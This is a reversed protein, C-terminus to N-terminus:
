DNWSWVDDGRLVADCGGDNYITQGTTHTNEVSTLWILQHAISEPSQHYNLPMPVVSDVFALTEESSRLQETMPTVVVGPAVANLPIGAGAWQPKISERRVWRSIARKSSSYIVSGTQPDDTVYSAAIELARAEDGALAADVLDAAVTQLSAMSSVVAVRPAQAQTLSPLLAELFETVGFYNVAMTVPIPHSLGASAIVADIKGGARELAEQAGAKRGEVTSLDADIDSGQLDIGIVSAGQEKLLEATAAGIGSAAGTIVYTRRM